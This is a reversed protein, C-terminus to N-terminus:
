DIEDFMFRICADDDVDQGDQLSSFDDQTSLMGDVEDMIANFLATDEAEDFFGDKLLVPM